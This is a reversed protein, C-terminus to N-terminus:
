RLEQESCQMSDLRFETETETVAGFSVYRVTEAQNRSRGFHLLVFETEASVNRRFASVTFNARVTYLVTLRATLKLDRATPPCNFATSTTAPISSGFSSLM